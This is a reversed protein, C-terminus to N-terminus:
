NCAFLLRPVALALANGVLICVLALAAERKYPRLLDLVRWITNM